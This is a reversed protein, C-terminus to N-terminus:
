ICFNTTKPKRSIKDDTLGIYNGIIDKYLEIDKKDFKKNEEKIIEEITEFGELLSLYHKGTIHNICDLFKLEFIEKFYDLDKIEQFLEKNKNQLYNTYKESVNETFIEKLPKNLYKKDFEVTSHSLNQKSLKIFQKTMIGKGIDNKFAEKIKKNVFRFISNLLMIRAKKLSNDSNKRKKGLYEKEEKYNEKEAKNSNNVNTKTKESTESDEIIKKPSKDFKNLTNNKNKNDKNKQIEFINNKNKHKNEAKESKKTVDFRIKKEEKKDVINKEEKFLSKIYIFSDSFEKLDLNDNFFNSSISFNINNNLSSDNESNISDIDSINYTSNRM